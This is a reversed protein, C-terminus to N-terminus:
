GDALEGALEALLGPGRFVLGSYLQLLDAGAELMARGDAGSMIGGVGIIPMAAGVEARIAAVVRRALPALPAGSLGGQESAIRGPLPGPRSVTTNVGIVADIKWALLAACISAIEADDLDPALKLALPLYKGSEEQHAAQARKLAELLRELEAGFQLGRLGPTNPSSVNITVYDAVDRCARLCHLYDGAADAAPTQRNRGINVGVPIRTRRRRLRAVAHDIGRNNFGMRNVICRGHRDRFLRPRPNGPQPLPTLTGIEVFAFGLAALADVHDGNKDLGAALGIRHPFELGMLHLPAAAPPPKAALLRSLGLRHVLEIGGLALGHSTEAPLRALSRVILEHLAM